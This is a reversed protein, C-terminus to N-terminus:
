KQSKGYHFTRYSEPGTFFFLQAVCNLNIKARSKSTEMRCNPTFLVDCYFDHPPGFSSIDHCSALLSFLIKSGLIRSIWGKTGHDLLKVKGRKLLALPAKLTHIEQFFPDWVIRDQTQKLLFIKMSENLKMVCSKLTHSPSM